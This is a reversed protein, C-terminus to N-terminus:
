VHARGIEIKKFPVGMYLEGRRYKAAEGTFASCLNENAPIYLYGTDPSYATPPWDKGGWLSPCFEARSGSRPVKTPDYEPRGSEPDLRTFVNQHVYPTGDVFRIDHPTRELLWLYGDRGAHVLGKITRGGRKVDILLPAAVEDWDWSDNWHYQHHARIAGSAADLAVVSTSYLNDGARQDGMWPGANGTGWYLLKSAPDYSGTVWAPVGGHKWTEGPWSDHGPEGPGPM